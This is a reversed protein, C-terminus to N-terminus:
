HIPILLQNTWAAPADAAARFIPAGAIEPDHPRQVRLELRTVTAFDALGIAEQYRRLVCGRQSRTHAVHAQAPLAKSTGKAGSRRCDADFAFLMATGIAINTCPDFAAELQRGFASIWSPALQLLGLVPRGGKALISQTRELAQAATKPPAPPDIQTLDLSADLVFYPNSEPTSEAIARVLADDSVYLSCTLITALLDM